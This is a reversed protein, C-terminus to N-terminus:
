PAPVNGLTKLSAKFINIKPFDECFYFYVSAHVVYNELVHNLSRINAERVNLITLSVHRM